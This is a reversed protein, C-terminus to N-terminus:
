LKYNMFFLLSRFVLTFSTRQGTEEFTQFYFLNEIVQICDVRRRKHLYERERERERIEREREKEREQKHDCIKSTKKM